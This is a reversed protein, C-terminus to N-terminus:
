YANAYVGKSVYAGRKSKYRDNARGITEDGIQLNMDKDEIAAIMREMGDLLAAFMPENAEAVTERMMDQPAVIEPNSSAGSYEGVTVLTRKKVIGGTALKSGGSYYNNYIEIRINRTADLISSLYSNLMSSLSGSIYTHLSSVSNSVQMTNARMVTEIRKTVAEIQAKTDTAIRLDAAYAAKDAASMNALQTATLATKDNMASLTGNTATLQTELPKTFESTLEYSLGEGQIKANRQQEYQAAAALDGAAKAESILESYDTEVDYAIGDFVHAFTENIQKAATEAATTANKVSEIQDGYIQDSIEKTKSNLALWNTVYEVYQEGTMADLKGALESGAEISMSTIEDLLAEPIAKNKLSALADGYSTLSELQTKLDATDASLNISGALKSTFSEQARELESLQTKLTDLNLEPTIQPSANNFVEQATCAVSSAATAVKSLASPMVMGVAIGESLFRGIEDRAVTSPSHIGLVNKVKDIVSTAWNGIRGFISTKDELGDVLGEALYEGMEKTAKSPSHENFCERSVLKNLIADSFKQVTDLMDRTKSDVGEGVGAAVYVGLDNSKRCIIPMIEDFKGEMASQAVGVAAIAANKIDEASGSIPIVIGDKVLENAHSAIATVTGPIALGTAAGIESVLGTAANRVLGFQSLIEDPITRAIEGGNENLAKILTQMEQGTAALQVEKYVGAQADYVLDYQQAIAEAMQKPIAAAAEGGQKLVEVLEPNDMALQKGLLSYIANMDGTIAQMREIDSIGETIAEPVQIGLSIFQQRLKELDDKRPALNDIMEQSINADAALSGLEVNLRTYAGEVARGMQDALLSSDMTADDFNLLSNVVGKLAANNQVENQLEPAINTLEDTFVTKLTDLQVQVGQGFQINLKEIAASEGIANGLQKNFADKVADPADLHGIANIGFERVKVTGKEVEITKQSVVDSIANQLEVFSEATLGTATANFKIQEITAELEADAAADLMSQYKKQLEAIAAAEDADIIGDAMADMYLQGLELGINDLEAQMNSISYDALNVIGRVFANDMGGIPELAVALSLTTTEKLNALYSRAESMYADIQVGLDKSVDGDLQGYIEAKITLKQISESMAKLGNYQTDLAAIDELVVKLKELYKSQVMEGAIEQLEEASLTIDGFRKSIEENAAKQHVGYLAAGVAVLAGVLGLTLGAAPNGLAIALAVSAGTLGTLTQVVSQVTINGSALDKVGLLYMGVGSVVGAIAGALPSVALTLGAVMGASGALMKVYGSWSTQGDVLEEMAGDLYTLAGAAALFAGAFRKAKSINSNPFLNDLVKTVGKAIKWSLLVKAVEKAVSLVALLKGKMDEAQKALGSLFDYEPMEIGLDGGSLGGSGGLANAAASASDDLVNLEDIGLTFSKAVAKGAKKAADGVGDLSGAAEDAGSALGGLSSYDITPPKFGFLSALANAADILISIFAQIWPIIKVAIVSAINGIARVLMNSQQALIRMSNAPTIITRAMDGMVNGSQEMIAVYRLQSKAAQNMSNVKADIGHKYAVEQLTAVDIAYGLRRLPEIEGAIGSEVKQMADEISINYFSSIDYGIQTLNKSMLNAKDEVVGFGSLIQKFMGQNRIFESMDIGLADQVTRAYDLAAEAGDGMAVTFLNLNEIYENSKNLANGVWSALKHYALALVGTKLNLGGFSKGAGRSSTALRDQARIVSQIRPPLRSFGASVKYMEDALPQMATAVRQISDAFKGMEMGNLSTAIEPLKKLTNVFSGMSNKGMGEMPRLALAISQIKTTDIAPMANIASVLPPLKNLSSLFPNINNKGMTEFPRVAEAVASIKGGDMTPMANVANVLEPLKKLTNLTNGIKMPQIRSINGVSRAFRDLANLNGVKRAAASVQGLGDAVSALGKVPLVSKLSELADVLVGIGDVAQGADTNIELSLEDINM